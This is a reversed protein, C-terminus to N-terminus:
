VETLHQLRFFLKKSKTKIEPSESGGGVIPATVCSLVTFELEQKRDISAYVLRNGTGLATLLTAAGIKLFRRRNIKV